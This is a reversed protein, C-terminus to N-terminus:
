NKNTIAPGMSTASSALSQARRDNSPDLDPGEPERGHDPAPHGNSWLRVCTAEFQLREAYRQLEILNEM